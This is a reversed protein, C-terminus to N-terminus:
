TVEIQHEEDRLDDLQYEQFFDISGVREWREAEEGIEDEKDNGNEGKVPHSLVNELINTILTNGFM